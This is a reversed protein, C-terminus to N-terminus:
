RGRRVGAKRRYWAVDHECKTTKGCEVCRLPYEVFVAGKTSGDEAKVLSWTGLGKEVLHKGDWVMGEPAAKPM